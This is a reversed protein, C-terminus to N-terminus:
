VNEAWDALVARYASRVNGKKLNLSITIVNKRPTVFDRMVVNVRDIKDEDLARLYANMNDAHRVEQNAPGFVYLKDTLQGQLVFVGGESEENRRWYEPLCEAIYESSPRTNYETRYYSHLTSGARTGEDNDRLFIWDERCYSEDGGWFVICKGRCDALTLGKIFALDADGTDNRVALDSLADKVADYTREESDTVADSGYFHQFDLLLVESPNAELFARVDALIPLFEPGFLDAHFVRLTGADNAVRIDFYRTGAQLQEAISTNQTQYAWMMDMCGADHSGGMAIDTVLTDDEIAAMWNDLTLGMQEEPAKSGDSLTRSLVHMALAAIAAALVIDAVLVVVAVLAIKLIKKSKDKM